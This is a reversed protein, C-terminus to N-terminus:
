RGVPMIIAALEQGTEHNVANLRVPDNPKYICLKVKSVGRQSSAFAAVQNLVALLRTLDFTITTAAQETPIILKEYAPFAGNVKKCKHEQQTGNDDTIGIRAFEREDIDAAIVAQRDHDAGTTRLALSQALEVAVASAIMFPKFQEAPTIGDMNQVDAKKPTTVRILQHGDTEVTEDPAVYLASLVYRSREDSCLAAIALNHKNLM